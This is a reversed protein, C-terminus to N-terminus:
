IILSANSWILGTHLTSIAPPQTQYTKQDILVYIKLILLTSSLCCYRLWPPPLHPLAGSKISEAGSKISLRVIINKEVIIKSFNQLIALLRKRGGAKVPQALVEDGRRRLFNNRTQLFFTEFTIDVRYGSLSIEFNEEVM